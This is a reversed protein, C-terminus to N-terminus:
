KTSVSSATGDGKGDEAGNLDVKVNEPEEVGVVQDAMNKFFATVPKPFWRQGNWEFWGIHGGGSTAAMFRWPNAQVEDYPAAEDVVIPDDKAHIILLPVRVNLLKDISSAARYYSGVTHFGFVKATVERDFDYAHVMRTHADPLIRPDKTLRDYHVEFLRRLNRYRELIIM